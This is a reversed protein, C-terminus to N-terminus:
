TRANSRFRQRHRGIKFSRRHANQFDVLRRPADAEHWTAVRCPTPRAPPVQANVPYNGTLRDRQSQAARCLRDSLSLRQRCRPRHRSLRCERNVGPGPQVCCLAPTLAIPHHVSQLRIGRRHEHSPPRGVRRASGRLENTCHALRRPMRLRHLQASRTSVTRHWHQVHLFARPRLLLSEADPNLGPLMGPLATRAPHRLPEGFPQQAVVFVRGPQPLVRLNEDDRHHVHVVRGRAVASLIRQRVIVIAVPRLLRM